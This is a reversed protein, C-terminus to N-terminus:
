RQPHRSAEIYRCRLEVTSCLAAWVIETHIVRRQRDVRASIVRRIMPVNIEYSPYERVMTPVTLM